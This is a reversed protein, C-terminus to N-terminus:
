FSLKLGLQIQRSTTNTSQIVGANGVRAGSADFVTSNPPAFNARNLVNFFEGRIEFNKGESVTLNKSLAANWMAAGPGILTNRGVSGLERVGPLSYAAPNFYRGIGGPDKSSNPNGWTIQDSTFGPVLNPSILGPSGSRVRTARTRCIRLLPHAGPM